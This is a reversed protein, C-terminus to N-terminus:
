NASGFERIPNEMTAGALSTLADPGDTTSTGGIAARAEYRDSRSPDRFAMILDSGPSLNLIRLISAVLPDSAGEPLSRLITWAALAATAAATPNSTRLATAVDIIAAAVMRRIHSHENAIKLLTDPDGATAAIEINQVVVLPLQAVQANVHNGSVHLAILAAVCTPRTWNIM